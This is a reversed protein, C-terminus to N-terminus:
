LKIRNITVRVRQADVDTYRLVSRFDKWGGAEMIEKTSAGDAGLRTAFTHRAMHPTFVVSCAKGLARLAPYLSSRSRWPFVSGVQGPPESRLADLVLLHLPMRLWDDTKSIRYLVTAENLNIDAWQLRLADSIRWGHLFLFVLLLKMKGDAAAILRAADERRMARPEPRKEKLKGIRVDPCLNNKALYHVIAGAPGFVHCNKTVPLGVPYLTNAVDVLVHHKIETIPRDGIVACLRAIDAKWQPSPPRANLYMEAAEQFSIPACQQEGDLRAIKTELADRFRKAGAKDKEHTSAYVARGRFTGRVYFIAGRKVLKLMQRTGHNEIVRGRDAM